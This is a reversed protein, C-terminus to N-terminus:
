RNLIYVSYNLYTTYLLCDFASKDGLSGLAQILASVVTESSLSGKTMQGNLDELYSIFIKVSKKSALREVYKIVNSFDQETLFGSNFENKAIEFYSVMLEASRTWNNEFLIKCINLQFDSIEKSIM